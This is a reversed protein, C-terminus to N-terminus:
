WEENEKEIEGTEEMEELEDDDIDEGTLDIIEMNLLNIGSNEYVFVAMQEFEKLGKGTLGFRKRVEKRKKHLEIKKKWIDIMGM